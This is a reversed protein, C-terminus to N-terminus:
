DVNFKISDSSGNCNFVMLYLGKSVDLPLQVQHNGGDLQGFSQFFLKEGKLSFVDFSVQSTIALEFDVKLLNDEFYVTSLHTNNQRWKESFLQVNFSPSGAKVWATYILEALSFSADEFLDITLDGTMEWLANSYASSSTSANVSKAYNDANILSDVYQNNEYIYRFIYGSVDEVYSVEGGECILQSAFKGIMTSEYRSHIGDNGSLQGDYNATLHLPMHGDAVYHSLDAAILAAEEFKGTEFYSVLTDFARITAWPLIGQDLIFDRGHLAILTDLNQSIAGNEVFEPYNDIDIYHKIGENKDWSKRKDADGSHSTLIPVWSDFQAMEANFSQSSNKGIIEHGKYGWGSLLLWSGALFVMLVGDKLKM